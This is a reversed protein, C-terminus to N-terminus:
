SRGHVVGEQFLEEQLAKGRVNPHDEGGGIGGVEGLQGVHSVLDYLDGGWWSNGCGGSSDRLYLLELCLNGAESLHHGCEVLAARSKGATARSIATGLAWSAGVRVGGLAGFGEAPVVFLKGFGGLLTLLGAAPSVFLGSM